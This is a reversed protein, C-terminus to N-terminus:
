PLPSCAALGRYSLPNRRHGNNATKCLAMTRSLRVIPIDNLLCKAKERTGGQKKEHGGTGGGDRHLLGWSPWGGLTETRTM